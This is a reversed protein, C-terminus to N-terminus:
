KPILQTNLSKLRGEAYELPWQQNNKRALNIAEEFLSKADNFKKQKVLGDAYVVYSMPDNKLKDVGWKMLIEWSSYDKVDLYADGVQAVVGPDLPIESQKLITDSNSLFFSLGKSEIIDFVKVYLPKNVKEIPQGVLMRFYNAMIPRSDMFQNTCSSVIFDSNEDAFVDVNFGAGGGNHGFLEVGPIVVSSYTELGYGYFHWSNDAPKTHNATKMIELMSKSILKGSTLASMFLQLDKANSLWGGAGSAKFGIKDKMIFRTKSSIIRYPQAAIKEPMTTDDLHRTITMGSPIFINKKLYEDFGLGSVKEVIWSLLIFGSNSYNMQKGPIDFALPVEEIIKKLENRSYQKKFNWDPHDWPSELGSTHNLLHHILIKDAGKINLEPLLDSLSADLRLKDKEVLQLIAASTFMKGVSETLFLTSPKNRIHRDFNAFGYGREYILKNDKSIRIVGNYGNEEYVKTLSDLRRTLSSQAYLITTNWLAIVLIILRM